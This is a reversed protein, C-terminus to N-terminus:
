RSTRACQATSKTQSPASLNARRATTCTREREENDETEEEQGKQNSPKAACKDICHHVHMKDRQWSVLGKSVLKHLINAKREENRLVKVSTRKQITHDSKRGRRCNMLQWFESSDTTKPHVDVREKLHLCPEHTPM